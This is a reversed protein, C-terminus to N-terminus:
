AARRLSAPARVARAVHLRGVAAMGFALWLFKRNEIDSAFALVVCAVLAAVGVLMVDAAPHRRRDLARWAVFADRLHAGLAWVFLALGIVGLEATTGLYANHSAKQLTHLVGMVHAWSIGTAQSLYDYYVLPFCGLGVGVLPNDRIVVWGVQWIDLRGAGRDAFTAGEALRQALEPGALWAGPLALALGLVLLWAGRAASVVAIVAALAFLAGRSMTLMVATLCLVGAAALAIREFGARGRDLAGVLTITVPLILVAALANPQVLLQQDVVIAARGRQLIGEHMLWLAALSLVVGGAVHAGLARRLTAPTDLVNAVLVYFALLQVATTTTQLAIRPDVAWLVSTAGWAVLLGLPLLGPPLRVEEHRVLARVAWAGFVAVGLLKHLTLVGDPTLAALEELPLLFLLFAAGLAPSTWVILGVPVALALAGLRPSLLFALGGAALLVIGGSVVAASAVPVRANM